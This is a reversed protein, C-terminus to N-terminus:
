KGSQTIPCFVYDDVRAYRYPGYSEESSASIVRGGHTTTDGLVIRKDSFGFVGFVPRGGM